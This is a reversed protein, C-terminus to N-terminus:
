VCNDKKLIIVRGGHKVDRTLSYMTVRDNVLWGFRLLGMGKLDSFCLFYRYALLGATALFNALCSALIGLDLGM